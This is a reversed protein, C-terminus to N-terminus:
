LTKLIAVLKLKRKHSLLLRTRYNQWEENRNSAEYAARVRTLWRGAHHYYESKGPDMIQEARERATRIAWDPEVQIASRVVADLAEYSILVGPQELKEIAEAVLGENALIRIADEANQSAKLAALIEARVSKWQTGAISKLSRYGDCTPWDLVAAKAARLALMRKGCKLALDRVWCALDDYREGRLDLGREGIKLADEPRQEEFLRGFQLAESPTKVRKLAESAARDTEGACVLMRLYSAKAGIRRAFALYEKVEGRRAMVRLRAQRLEALLDRDSTLLTTAKEVSEALVREAVGLEEGVAYDDFDDRWAALRKALARRRTAPGDFMIAADIWARGLSRAFEGFEGDSDDTTEFESAAIATTKELDAMAEGIRDADLACLAKDLLRTLNGDFPNGCSLDPTHALALIDRRVLESKADDPTTGLWRQAFAAFEPVQRCSDALLAEREFDALGALQKAISINKSRAPKNEACAALLVAVIHKCWGDGDYTCDCRALVDGSEDYGAEIGYPEWGSGQVDGRIQKVSNALLRVAGNVVCDRGREFSRNTARRRIYTERIKM